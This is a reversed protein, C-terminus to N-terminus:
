ALRRFLYQQQLFPRRASGFVSISYAVSCEPATGSSDVMALRVPKPRWVPNTGYRALPVPQCHHARVLISQDRYPNLNSLHNASKGKKSAFSLLMM